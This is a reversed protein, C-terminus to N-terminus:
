KGGLKQYMVVALLAESAQKSRPAFNYKEDKGIRVQFILKRIMKFESIKSFPAQLDHAKSETIFTLQDKRLHLWGRCYDNPDGESFFTIEHSHRVFFSVGDGRRIGELFHEKAKMSDEEQYARATALFIAAEKDGPTRALLQELGAAAAKYQGSVIQRVAVQVEASLAPASSSSQARAPIALLFLTLLAVFDCKM